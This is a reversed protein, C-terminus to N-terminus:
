SAPAAAFLARGLIVFDCAEPATEWTYGGSACFLTGKPLAKRALEANGEALFGTEPNVNSGIVLGPWGVQEAAVLDMATFVELWAHAAWRSATKPSHTVEFDAGLGHAIGHPVDARALLPKHTLARASRVDAFADGGWPEGAAVCVGWIRPDNSWRPLVVEMPEDTVAEGHPTRRKYEAIIRAM